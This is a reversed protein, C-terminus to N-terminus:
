GALSVARVKVRVRVRAALAQGGPEPLDWPNSALAPFRQASCLFEATERCIPMYGSKPIDCKETSQLCM